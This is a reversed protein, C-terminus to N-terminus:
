ITIQVSRSFFNTITFMYKISLIWNMLMLRDIPLPILSPIDKLQLLFKMGWILVNIKIQIMIQVRVTINM